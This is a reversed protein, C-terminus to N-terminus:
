ITNSKFNCFNLKTHFGLEKVYNFIVCESKVGLKIHHGRGLWMVKGLQFSMFISSVQNSTMIPPLNRLCLESTCVLELSGVSVSTGHNFDWFNNFKSKFSYDCM